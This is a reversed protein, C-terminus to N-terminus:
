LYLVLGVAGAALLVLIPDINFGLIAVISLVAVVGPVIGPLTSPVVSVVAAMILAVVVPRIGKFIEKM